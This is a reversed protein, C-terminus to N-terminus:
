YRLATDAAYGHEHWIPQLENTSEAAMNWQMEQAITPGMLATPWILFLFLCCLGRYILSEKRNRRSRDLNPKMQRASYSPRQRMCVQSVLLPNHRVHQTAPQLMENGRYTNRLPIDRHHLSGVTTRLSWTGNMGSGCFSCTAKALRCSDSFATCVAWWRIVSHLRNELSRGVTSLGGGWRQNQLIVYIGDADCAEGSVDEVRKLLMQFAILSRFM